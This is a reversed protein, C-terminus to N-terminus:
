IWEEAGETVRRRLEDRLLCYTFYAEELVDGPNPGEPESELIWQVYEDAEDVAQELVPTDMSRIQLLQVPLARLVIKVCKFTM